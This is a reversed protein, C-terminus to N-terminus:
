SVIRSAKEVVYDGHPDTGSSIPLDPEELERVIKQTGADQLNRQMQHHLHRTHHHHLRQLTDRKVPQAATSPVIGFCCLLFCVIPHLLYM